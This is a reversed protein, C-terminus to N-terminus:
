PLRVQGAGGVGGLAVIGLVPADALPNVDKVLLFYAVLVAKLAWLFACLALASAISRRDDHLREPESTVERM